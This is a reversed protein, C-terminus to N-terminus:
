TRYMVTKKEVPSLKKEIKDQPSIIHSMMQGMYSHINPDIMLKVNEIKNKLKEYGIESISNHRMKGFTTGGM